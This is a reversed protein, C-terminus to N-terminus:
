LGNCNENMCATECSGCVGNWLLGNSNGNEGGRRVRVVFGIGGFGM